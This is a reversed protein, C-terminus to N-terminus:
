WWILRNRPVFCHLKRILYCIFYFDVTCLKYSTLRHRCVQFDKVNIDAVNVCKDLQGIGFSGPLVFINEVHKSQNLKWCIAHERGGNGIVLIRKGVM